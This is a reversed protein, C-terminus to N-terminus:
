LKPCAEARAIASLVRAVDGATIDVAVPLGIVRPALDDTVAMATRPCTSFETQRHLGGGYWLRTDIGDERLERLVVGATGPLTEYLVYPNAHSETAHLLGSVGLHSAEQRYLNALGIFSSRKQAWGDLDALGVAAHYESLKGNISPGVSNRGDFFGFNLARLCRDILPPNEAMIFGGEGSSLTKTAHLSVVIPVEASIEPLADFSAAADIVAPINTEIRFQEWSRVSCLKGYPAVPIVAGIKDREPLAAIVRPDLAWSERDVDVLFPTYGCAAAAVATAVFTYSPIACLPKQPTARGAVALLTATLGATGSAALTLCEPGMGLHGALRLRFESELPGFNTYHRSEDIRRLYPLLAAADPLRPRNVPLLPRADRRQRDREATKGSLKM